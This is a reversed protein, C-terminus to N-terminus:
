DQTEPLKGFLEKKIPTGSARCVCVKLRQQSTEEINSILLLSALRSFNM